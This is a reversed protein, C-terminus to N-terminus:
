ALCKSPDRRPQLCSQRHARLYSRRLTTQSQMMEERRQSAAAMKAQQERREQPQCGGSLGKRGKRRIGDANNLDENKTTSVLNSRSLLNSGIPYHAVPGRKIWALWERSIIQVINPLNKQGPRPRETIGVLGRRRAEHLTTQVTTRCVGALAGIKDIPLDCFGHHKIEGGIIYLVAREGETYWRRMNAPMVGSGGLKRRRHRSAERDPSRPRRRPALRNPRARMLRAKFGQNGRRQSIREHLYNAEDDNITGEGWGQWMERAIEDLQSTSAQSIKDHIDTVTETSLKHLVNM